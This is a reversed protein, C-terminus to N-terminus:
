LRATEEKPVGALNNSTPMAVDGVDKGIESVLKKLRVNDRAIVEYKQEIGVASNKAARELM